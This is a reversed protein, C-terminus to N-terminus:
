HQGAPADRRAGILLGTETDAVEIHPARELQSTFGRGVAAQDPARRLADDRADLTGHLFSTHAPDVGGELAQLDNCDQWFTSVFRQAEPVLVWELDPERSSTNPLVGPGAKVKLLRSHTFTLNITTRYTAAPPPGFGLPVEGRIRFIGGRRPAPAARRPTSDIATDAATAALAAGGLRLVDRRNM